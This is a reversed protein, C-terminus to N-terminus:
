ARSLSTPQGNALFQDVVGTIERFIYRPARDARIPFYNKGSYHSLVPHTQAEYTRLRERIVDEHDDKRVQ